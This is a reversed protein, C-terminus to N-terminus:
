IYEISSISSHLVFVLDYRLTEGVQLIYPTNCPTIILNILSVKKLLRSVVSNTLQRMCHNGAMVVLFMFENTKTILFFYVGLLTTKLVLVFYKSTCMCTNRVLLGGAM